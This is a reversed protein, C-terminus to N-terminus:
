FCEVEREIAIGTAKLVKAALDDAFRRVDDARGEGRSVLVLPQAKFSGVEGAAVGKYHLINDLIWALPIKVAEEQQGRRGVDSIRSDAVAPFGPMDPFRKKLEDFQKKTIIPNKFFSGATGYIALDPFKGRRIELVAERVNALTAKAAGSRAFYNKLDRYELNLKGNKKLAFTVATIIYRKGDATKFFSDRYGFRCEANSFRRPAGTESDITDVSVITDKAEAGYAGINQVPAGGVSGPIGSLNELGYLGRKVTADVFADWREGAGATILVETAREEFSVGPIEIKIILGAFGNDSALLNSGAGVAFFPVGKEKAFASADIVDEATVARIFYRAPGGIKFTTLASLPINEQFEM